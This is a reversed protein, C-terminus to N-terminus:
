GNRLGGLQLATTIMRQWTSWSINALGTAVWMQNFLSKSSFPSSHISMQLNSGGKGSTACGM